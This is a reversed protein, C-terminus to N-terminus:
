LPHASALRTPLLRMGALENASRPLDAPTRVPEATLVDFLEAGVGSAFRLHQTQRLRRLGEADGAESEDRAVRLIAERQAPEPLATFGPDQLTSNLAAVAGAWDHHQEMITARLDCAAQGQQGSLTSLAENLKGSAILLRARLLARRSALAPELGDSDSQDLVALAAVQDSRDAILEALRIGLEAKVSAGSAQEFLRRLVPEAREPLDLALLKDVLVPALRNEADATNLLGAAEDALALIDFASLSAARDGHLLDAVIGTEMARLEPRAQPFVAGTDRLMALAARWSGAQARLQAVRQRLRLEHNGGRWAYIQRDLAEAATAPDLRHAALKVEVAQALADARALRDTGGAVQNLKALAEDIRGQRQLLMARSLDLAPDASAALLAALAKDQGGAQLRIAIPRLMARRLGPPYDLVLPWSSALAAAQAAGDARDSAWLARWLEAEDSPGLRAPDFTLPPPPSGGETASLWAAVASLGAGVADDRHAPDDATAVHLVSAAEVDLGQALMAMAVAVRPAYRAPKPTTAADRLAQGFRRQLSEAPLSPFDFIRTMARGDPRSTAQGSWSISLAPPEAASLEFGSRVSRLTVRDSVPQVVVGQVTPLLTFEATQHVSVMRQGSTGQTGVLLRGGTVADDLAVIRGTADADLSLVADHLRGALPAPPSTAAPEQIALVAWGDARRLLGLQAGQALRWQLHMGHALMQETVNGFVPDDRLASLDMPQAVDFVVHAEGARVFAAAGVTRGYPLLMAPGPLGPGQSLLAVSGASLAPAAEAPQGSLLSAIANPVGLPVSPPQAAVVPKPAPRPVDPSAEATIGASRPAAPSTPAVIHPEPKASSAHAAPGAAIAVSRPSPPRPALVDIVLREDMRWVRAQAGEALQISAQGPGGVLGRLRQGLRDNALIRGAGTTQIALISGGQRWVARAGPPLSLVLRDFGEHVAFRCRVDPLVPSLSPAGPPPVKATKPAAAAPTVVIVGFVAAAALWSAIRHTGTTRM